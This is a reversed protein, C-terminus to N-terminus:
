RRVAVPGLTTAMIRSTATRVRTRAVSPTTSGDSFRGSSIAAKLSDEFDVSSSRYNPTDVNAIDNSIVDQRQSLGDLATQLVQSVADSVAFSV